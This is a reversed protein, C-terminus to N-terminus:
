ELSPMIWARVALLFGAYVLLFTIAHAWASKIPFCLHVRMPHPEPEPVEYLNAITFCGQPLWWKLQRPAASGRPHWMTPRPPLLIPPRGTGRSEPWWLAARHRAGEPSPPSLLHIALHIPQATKLPLHDGPKYCRVEAAQWWRQTQEKTGAKELSLLCPPTTFFSLLLLSKLIKAGRAISECWDNRQFIPSTQPPLLDCSLETCASQKWWLNLHSGRAFVHLFLSLTTAPEMRRPGGLYGTACPHQLAHSPEEAM